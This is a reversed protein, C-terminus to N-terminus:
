VMRRGKPSFALSSAEFPLATEMSSEIRMFPLLDSDDHVVQYIGVSTPKSDTIVAFLQGDPHFMVLAKSEVPTAYDISAM